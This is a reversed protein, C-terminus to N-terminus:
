NEGEALRSVILDVATGRAVEAGASLKQGLVTEPVYANTEEYTVEGLRLGAQLVLKKASDLSKGRVDPVYFHSPLSGISVTIDVISNEVLTDGATASQLSVVGAPFYNSYDYYVEGVSLGARKLVFEADRESAGIVNPIEVMREGASLTLYIRRGRKVHSYPAPNQFIVTGAPYVPDYKPKPEKVVRFGKSELLAKAEGFSKETVDPLEREAGHKTYLPMVVFEFLLALFILMGATSLVGLVPTKMKELFRKM